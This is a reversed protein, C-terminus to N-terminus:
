VGHSALREVCRVFRMEGATVATNGLGSRKWRGLLASAGRGFDGDRSMHPRVYEDTWRLRLRAGLPVVALVQSLVVGHRFGLGTVVV